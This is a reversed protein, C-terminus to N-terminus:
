LDKEFCATLGANHVLKAVGSNVVRGPITM